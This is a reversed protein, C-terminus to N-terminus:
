KKGRKTYVIHIKKGKDNIPVIRFNSGRFRNKYWKAYDKAEKKTEFSGAYEFKKKGFKKLKPIPNKETKKSSSKTKKRTRERRSM